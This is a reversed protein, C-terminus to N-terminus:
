ALVLVFLIILILVTIAILAVFMAVQTDQYLPLTYENNDVVTIDVAIKVDDLDEKNGLETDLDDPNM